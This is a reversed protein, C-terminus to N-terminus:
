GAEVPDGSARGLGRRATRGPDPQHGGAEGVVPPARRGAGGRGPRAHLGDAAAPIRIRWSRIGTGNSASRTRLSRRRSRSSIKTISSFFGVRSHSILSARYPLPGDAAPPPCSRDRRDGAGGRTPDGRRRRWGGRAAGGDRAARSSRAAPGRWGWRGTLPGQDGQGLMPVGAKQEPQGWLQPVLTGSPARTPAPVPQWPIIRSISGSRTPSPIPTVAMPLSPAWHIPISGKTSASWRVELVVAIAGVEVGALQGDLVADPGALVIVNLIRHFSVTAMVPPCSGVWRMPTGSSAM